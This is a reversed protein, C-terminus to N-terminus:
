SRRKFCGASMKTKGVSDKKARAALAVSARAIRLSNRRFCRSRPFGIARIAALKACTFRYKRSVKGSSRRAFFYQGPDNVMTRVGFARIAARARPARRMPTRTGACAAARASARRTPAGIVAVLALRDPWGGVLDLFLTFLSKGPISMTGPRQPYWRRGDLTTEIFLRRSM